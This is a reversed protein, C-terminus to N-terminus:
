AEDRGQQEAEAATLGRTRRKRHSRTKNETDDEPFSDAYHRQEEYRRSSSRSVVNVGTDRELVSCVATGKKKKLATKM